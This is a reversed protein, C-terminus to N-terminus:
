RARNGLPMRGVHGEKETHIANRAATRSAQQTTQMSPAQVRLKDLTIKHPVQAVPEHISGKMNPQAPPNLRTTDKTIATKTGTFIGKLFSVLNLAPQPTHLNTRSHAVDGISGGHKTQFQPVVPTRMDSLRNSRINDNRLPHKSDQTKTQSQLAHSSDSKHSHNAIMEPHTSRMNPPANALHLVDEEKLGVDASSPQARLHTQIFKPKETQIEEPAFTVKSPIARKSGLKHIRPQMHPMNDDKLVENPRLQEQTYESRNPKYMNNYSLAQDTHVVDGMTGMSRQTPQVHMHHISMDDERMNLNLGRENIENTYQNQARLGFSPAEDSLLAVKPDQLTSTSEVVTPEPFSSPFQTSQTYLMPNREHSQEPMRIDREIKPNEHTNLRVNMLRSHKRNHSQSIGVPTQFSPANTDPRRVEPHDNTNHYGTEPFKSEQMLTGPLKKDNRRTTILDRKEARLYPQEYVSTLRKTSEIDIVSERDSVGKGTYATNFHSVINAEKPAITATIPEGKDDYMYHNNHAIERKKQVESIHSWPTSIRNHVYLKEPVPVTENPQLHYKALNQM